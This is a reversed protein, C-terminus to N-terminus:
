GLVSEIWRGLKLALLDADTTIESDVITISQAPLASM